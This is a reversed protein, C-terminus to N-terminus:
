IKKGADSDGEVQGKHRKQATKEIDNLLESDPNNAKKLLKQAEVWADVQSALVLNEPAQDEFESLGEEALRKKLYDTITM